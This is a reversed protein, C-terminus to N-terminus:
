EDRTKGGWWRELLAAALGRGGLGFALALALVVGALVILFSARVVEGGIHLQDLAILGVFVLVVYRAVLGLVEPDRIGANRCHSGVAGAVFRAFYAGFLVVLLAVAVNPVFLVAQRLLETVHTLGLGGFGILLAGLIVTWYALLGFLGTTDLPSGGQQLFGDIGARAGLVHFNIARLAREVAFRVVKAAMWGLVLVGIALLLRPLFVGAQGLFARLPELMVDVHDM